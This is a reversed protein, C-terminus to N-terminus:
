MRQPISVLKKLQEKTKKKWHDSVPLKDGNSMLVEDYSLKVVHRYNVLYSKHIRLFGENSQGIEKEVELLKKYESYTGNRGIIHTKRLDSHFYLIDHIPIKYKEKNYSFRYYADQGIIMQIVRCLLKEFEQVDLPKVIFGSPSVEFAHKMYSDYATVFILVVTRDKTRIRRATELGDMGDMEIDLYIIDYCSEKMAKLLDFGNSFSDIRFSVGYKEALNCLLVELQGAFRLDDDCIAIDIM